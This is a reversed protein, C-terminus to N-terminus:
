KIVIETCVFLITSTQNPDQTEIFVTSRDYPVSGSTLSCASLQILTHINKLAAWDVLWEAFEM